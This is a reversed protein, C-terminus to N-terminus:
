WLSMQEAAKNTETIKVAQGSFLRDLADILAFDPLMHYCGNGPYATSMGRLFLYYAGGVHRHYDYGVLRLRLYRHMALVYLVGQLHYDHDAMAQEMKAQSYDEYHDGLHNSKYDAVFVRDNRVFTLDIFGKLMGSLEDFQYTRTLQPYFQNILRNFEDVRVNHLALHFEMEVQIQGTELQSLSFSQMDASDSHMPGVLPIAASLVDVLWDEVVEFWSEEIGFQAAQQAISQAIAFPNHFEISELVGHLFSGAQAGRTFSFRDAQVAMSPTEYGLETHIVEFEDRGPADQEPALQNKAIASYSTVRWNRVIKRPLEAKSLGLQQDRDPNNFFASQREQDIPQYAISAKAGLKLIRQALLDDNLENQQGFLLRGLACSTLSSQKSRGKAPDWIGLSCVYQARTIAVYLLRIDEALREFDAKSLADEHSNFDVTLRHQDDHYIAERAQKFACAFPIFVLPFELGKSAHMTMIKVLNDDTELRLQQAENSNDPESLHQSFWYLLQTEGPKLAHQQQLLESLHRLDTLRRLGDNHYQLLNSYVEFFEMVQHIAQMVGAHQWTKQWLYCREVMAQWQREDAFWSDLEAAQRCLTASALAGKLKRENGPNALADLLLYLDQATQTAFVSHRELFVSAVGAQGLAHKVQAAEQRNRVLVCCDGAMVARHGNSNHQEIQGSTLYDVIENATNVALFPAAKAFTIPGDGNVLHHFILSHQPEDSKIIGTNGRAGKVDIFPIADRFLFGEDRSSFLCNVSNVLDATSRWNTGLTFQRDQDVGRKAEIYTFIDAGRFGYIAQKPDGIMILCADMQQDNDRQYLRSFIAFQVPDTDQFEDILAAPYDQRIAGALLDGRPGTLAQHLRVLLDDPALLSLREKYMQLTSSVESLAHNFMGWRIQESSSQRVAELAEFRAFDLHSLDNSTKTQAGIVKTPFFDCWGEKGFPCSLSDSECFEDMQQVIAGKGLKTSKKLKGQRLQDGVRHEQWWNKVKAVESDLSDMTAQLSSLDVKDTQLQRNMLPQLAGLLKDPSSWIATVQQYMSRSLRLVTSRWYDNISATLWQSTDMEFKEDYSAGSEFAYHTLMKHCFSHITLVAADDMQAIALSLRECALRIDALDEILRQTFEDESRGRYFDVYAASIRKRIRDKLEATAAKTFTVVLIQEVSLPKCGHGLLMRLYLNVITYTKGTGASAEILATHQLPFSYTDLIKM